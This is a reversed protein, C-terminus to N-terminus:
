ATGVPHRSATTSPNKTTLPAALASTSFSEDLELAGGVKGALRQDFMRMVVRITGNMRKADLAIELNALDDNTLMTTPLAHGIGAIVACPKTM